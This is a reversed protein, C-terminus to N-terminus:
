DLMDDDGGDDQAGGTTSAAIGKSMEKLWRVVSSLLPDDEELVSLQEAIQAQQASAHRIGQELPLQAETGERQGRYQEQEARGLEATAKQAQEQAQHVQNELGRVEQHVAERAAESNPTSQIREIETEVQALQEVLAQVASAALRSQAKLEQVVVNAENDLKKADNQLRLLSVAWDCVDEPPSQLQQLWQSYRVPIELRLLGLLQGLLQSSQGEEYATCLQKERKLLSAISELLKLSSRLVRMDEEGDPHKLTLELIRSVHSSWETLLREAEPCNEDPIVSEALEMLSEQKAQELEQKLLAPAKLAEWEASARQAANRKPRKSARGSETVPLTSLYQHIARSAPGRTKNQEGISRASQTNDNPVDPDFKEIEILRKVTELRAADTAHHLLTSKKGNMISHLSIEHALFSDLMRLGGADGHSCAGVFSDFHAFSAM